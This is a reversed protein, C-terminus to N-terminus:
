TFAEKKNNLVMKAFSCKIPHKVTCIFNSLVIHDKFNPKSVFIVSRVHYFHFNNLRIKQFVQYIIVLKRNPYSTNEDFLYATTYDIM